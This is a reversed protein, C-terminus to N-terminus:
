GLAGAATRVFSRIAGDFERYEQAEALAPSEENGCNDQIYDTLNQLKECVSQAQHVVEEPGLLEIRSALGELLERELDLQAADERTVTDYLWGLHTSIALKRARIVFEDYTEFRRQRLWEGYRHKREWRKGLLIGLLAMCGSVFAALAIM